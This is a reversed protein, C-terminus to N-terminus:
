LVEDRLSTKRSTDSPSPVAAVPRPVSLWGFPTVPSAAATAPCIGMCFPM